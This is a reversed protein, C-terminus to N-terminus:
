SLAGRGDGLLRDGGIRYLRNTRSRTQVTKGSGESCIISRLRPPGRRIVSMRIWPAPQRRSNRKTSSAEESVPETKLLERARELDAEEVYVDCAGGAGLGRAGGAGSSQLMSHIAAASLRSCVLQAEPENSASVAIKLM